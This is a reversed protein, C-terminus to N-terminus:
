EEAPWAARLNLWHTFIESRGDQFHIDARITFEGWGSSELAFKGSKDKQIQVPQPFTPHLTYKVEKISELEEPSADVFIKWRFWRSGKRSEVEKAYNKLEIM